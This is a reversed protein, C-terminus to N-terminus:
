LTHRTDPIDRFYGLRDSAYQNFAHRSFGEESQQKEEDTRTRGAEMWFNIGMVAVPQDSIFPPPRSTVQSNAESMVINSQKNKYKISTIPKSFKASFNAPKVQKMVQQDKSLKKVIKHRPKAVVTAKTVATTQKEQATNKHVTHRINHQVHPYIRTTRRGIIKMGEPDHTHITTYSM